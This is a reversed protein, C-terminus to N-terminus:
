SMLTPSIRLVGLDCRDVGVFTVDPVFMPGYRTM